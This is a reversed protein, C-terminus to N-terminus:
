VAVAGRLKATAPRLSLPKEVLVFLLSAVALTATYLIPMFAWFLWDPMGLPLVRALLVMVARVVVGHVLYYSYSMNGLWRLPAWRMVRSISGADRFCVACLAFFAVSYVLEGAAGSLAHTVCAALAAAPAAWALWPPVWAGLGEALLMGAFFPMMRLPIGIGAGSALVFAAALAALVAVRRRRNTRALGAGLVLVATAVYFAMEYSLSWAVDVIPVVPFLGPLLALNAALYVAARWPDATLKGPLPLLVTLALMVAFMVLFAPYIRQCRRAMFGAFPPAKRVLTGYILYGSLVFFLEVGLNGYGRLAAATAAAAGAPLGLLEAQVSYHHLFVLTVAYGRLGEMPLLRAHRPDQLAYTRRLWPIM